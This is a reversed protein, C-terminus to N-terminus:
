DKANAAKYLVNTEAWHTNGDFALFLYVAVPLLWKVCIKIGSKM